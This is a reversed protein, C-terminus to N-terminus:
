VQVQWRGALPLSEFPRIDATQWNSIPRNQKQLFWWRIKNISLIMALTQLFRRWIECFDRTKIPNSRIEFLDQRIEVLNPWIKFHDRCIEVLDLWIEFLDSLIETYFWRSCIIVMKWHTKQHPRNFIPKEHEFGDVLGGTEPKIPPAGGGVTVPTLDAPKRAPDALNPPNTPNRPQKSM